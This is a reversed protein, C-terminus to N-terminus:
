RDYGETRWRRAKEAELEQQALQVLWSALRCSCLPDFVAFRSTIGASVTLFSKPSVSPAVLGALAGLLFSPM